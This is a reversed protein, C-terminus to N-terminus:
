FREPRVLAVVLYVILAAALLGGIVNEVIVTAAVGADDSAPARLRRDAAARLGPRGDPDEEAADGTTAAAALIRGGIPRKWAGERSGLPSTGRTM